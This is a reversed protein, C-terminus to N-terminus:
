ELGAPRKPLVYVSGLETCVRRGPVCTLGASPLNRTYYVGQLDYLSRILM